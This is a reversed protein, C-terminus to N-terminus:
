PKCVCRHDIDVNFAM